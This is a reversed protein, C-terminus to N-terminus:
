RGKEDTDIDSETPNLKRDDSPKSSPIQLDSTRVRQPAGNRGMSKLSKADAAGEAKAKLWRGYVSSTTPSDAHGLQQSVWM